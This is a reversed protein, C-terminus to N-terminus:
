PVWLPAAKATPGGRTSTVVKIVPTTRSTEKAKPLETTKNRHYREAYGDSSMVILMNIANWERAHQLDWATTVYSRYDIPCCISAAKKLEAM